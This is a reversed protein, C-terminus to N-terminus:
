NNLLDIMDNIKILDEATIRKALELVDPMDRRNRVTMLELTKKIKTNM